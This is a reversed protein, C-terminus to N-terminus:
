TNANVFLTGQIHFYFCGRPAEPTGGSCTITIARDGTGTADIVAGDSIIQFGTNALPAYRCTASVMPAEASVGFRAARRCDKAAGFVIRISTSGSRSM